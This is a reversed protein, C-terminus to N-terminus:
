DEPDRRPDRRSPAPPPIEEAPRVAKMADHTIATGTWKIVRGEVALARSEVMAIRKSMMRMIRLISGIALTNALAVVAVFAVVWAMLVM